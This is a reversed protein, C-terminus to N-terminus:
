TLTFKEQGQKNKEYSAGALPLPRQQRIQKMIFRQFKMCPGEFAVALFVGFAISLVVNSVILITLNFVSVEIIYYQTGYILRVILMHSLYIIFSAKSLIISFDTSLIHNLTPLCDYHCAAIIWAFAVAWIWTCAINYSTSVLQNDLSAAGIMWIHSSYNILLMTLTSMIWGIRSWRRVQARWRQNALAYGLWLGLLFVFAHPYPSWFYNIVFGTWVEGVQGVVGLNNPTYGGTYHKYASMATCYAVFLITCILAQKKNDNLMMWLLMLALLYFFMDVSIWWGVLNCMEEDRYFAQLHLLNIWWNKECYKAAYHTMDYWFPGNGIVPLLIYLLSILLVQPTLRLYRALLSSLANFNSSTGQHSYWTTYAALLGSMLFFNDVVYNANFIPHLLPNQLSGVNEFIRGFGSWENYQLTHVIIIWVMTLVRLGHLCRIENPRMSTDLLEQGNTIMSLYYFAVHKLGSKDPSNEYILKVPNLKDENSINNTESYFSSSNREGTARAVVKFLTLEALHWITALFVMLFFAGVVLLSALQLRNMPSSMEVLIPGNEIQGFPETESVFGLSKTSPVRTFCKVPGTMLSLRSGITSAVQQIDDPSCKGPVCLGTKLYLYHFYQAFHLIENFVDRRGFLEVLEAREEEFIRHFRRRSPVVPRFSLVCYSAFDVQGSTNAQIDVCGRFSGLDTFQGDLLGLPPFNGSSSWVKVM